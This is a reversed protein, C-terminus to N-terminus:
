KQQQKGWQAVNGKRKNKQSVCEPLTFMQFDDNTL